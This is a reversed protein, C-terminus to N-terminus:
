TKIECRIVDKLADLGNMAAPFGCYVSLHILVNRLEKETGGSRLFGRMHIKTQEEKGMAILAAITILSKERIKLGERAWITDYAISQTLSNFDPDLKELRLFVYKAYKKGYLNDMM